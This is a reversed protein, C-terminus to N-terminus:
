VRREGHSIVVFETFDAFIQSFFVEAADTVLNQLPVPAKTV